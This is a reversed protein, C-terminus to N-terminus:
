NRMRAAAPGTFAALLLMETTMWIAPQAIFVAVLVTWRWNRQAGVMMVVAASALRVSLPLDFWVWDPIPAPDTAMMFAFWEFWLHPAVVFSALAVAGTAGLAIALNRWERRAVFWLVGIGPTVKTLLIFAWAAPYRFGLVVAVAMLVTINGTILYGRGFDGAMRWFPMDPGLLTLALAALPGIMVALVGAWLAGFLWILGVAMIALWIGLFVEWPLLTLPAIVQAFAPSYAYGTSAHWAGEYLGGKWANYYSFTDLQPVPHSVTLWWAYLVFGLGIATLIWRGAAQWRSIPSWTASPAEAIGRRTTIGIRRGIRAM